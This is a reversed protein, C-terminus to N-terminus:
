RSVALLLVFLVLTVGQLIIRWRMLRNSREPDGSTRSLGIMGALLVGLTSIMGLGVLIMLVSKMARVYAM